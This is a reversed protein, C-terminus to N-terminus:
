RIHELQQVAVTLAAALHANEAKSASLADLLMDHARAEDAETNGHATSNTSDQALDKVTIALPETVLQADSLVATNLYASSRATPVTAAVPPQQASAASAPRLRPTQHESQEVEAELEALLEDSICLDEYATDAKGSLLTRQASLSTFSDSVSATILEDGSQHEDDTVTLTRVFSKTVSTNWVLAPALYKNRFTGQGAPADSDM